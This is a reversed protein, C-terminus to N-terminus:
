APETLHEQIARELGTLPVFRVQCPDLNTSSSETESACAVLALEPQYANIFSRLSRTIRRRHGAKVEVPVLRGSGVLVFDVEAGGKSRWYHIDWGRPLIKALAAFVWGEM